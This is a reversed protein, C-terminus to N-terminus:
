CGLVDDNGMDGYLMHINDGLIRCAFRREDLRKPRGSVSAMAPETRRDLEYYFAVNAM